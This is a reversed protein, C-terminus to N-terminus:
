AARLGAVDITQAIRGIGVHEATGPFRPLRKGVMVGGRRIHRFTADTDHTERGAADSPLRVEDGAPPSMYGRGARAQRQVKSATTSLREFVWLLQSTSVPPKILVECRQCHIKSFFPM